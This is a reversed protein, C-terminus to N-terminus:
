KYQCNVLSIVRKFLYLKKNDVKVDKYIYYGKKQGYSITFKNIAVM